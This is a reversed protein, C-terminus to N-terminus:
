TRCNDMNTEVKLTKVSTTRISYYGQLFERFNKQNKGSIKTKIPKRLEDRREKAIERTQRSM